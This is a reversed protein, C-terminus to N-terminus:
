ENETENITKARHLIDRRLRELEERDDSPLGHCGRSGCGQLDDEAEDQDEYTEIMLSELWLVHHEEDSM